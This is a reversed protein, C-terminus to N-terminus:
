GDTHGDSISSGRFLGWHRARPKYLSSLGLVEPFESDLFLFLSVPLKHTRDIHTGLLCMLPTHFDMQTSGSFTVKRSPVHSHAPASCQTPLLCSTDLAETWFILLSTFDALQFRCFFLVHFFCMCSWRPYFKLQCFALPSLPFFAAATLLFSLVFYGLKSPGLFVFSELSVM